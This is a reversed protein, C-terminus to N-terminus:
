TNELRRKECRRSWYYFLASECETMRQQGLWAFSSLERLNSHLIVATAHIPHLVIKDQLKKSLHAVLSKVCSFHDDEVKGLPEQSQRQLYFLKSIIHPLLPLVLHLAPSKSAQLRMMADLVPKCVTVFAMLRPSTAASPYQANPLTVIQIEEM